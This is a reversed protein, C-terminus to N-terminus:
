AGYNKYRTKIFTGNGISQLFEKFVESFNITFSTPELHTASLATERIVHGQYDKVLFSKPEDIYTSLLKGTYKAPVSFTTNFNKFVENIDNHSIKLLYDHGSKKPLGAITTELQGNMYFIYKKAGLTKFLDYTGENDWVGLPKVVGKVTKPKLSDKPLHQYFLATELKKQIKQNYDYVYKKHKNWNLFKISDTDSYLYDDKISLLGSWLNARAYATVFVGWAFFLFRNRNKNYDAIQKQVDAPEKKWEDTYSIVDRVIDTVSCGYTSNLMGKSHMYFAHKSPIGKLKTKARYLEVITKVFPQPLYHKYFYKVRTIKIADWEYVKRVINFDINTMVTTFKRASWVRGNNEVIMKCKDKFGRSKSLYNDFDYGEKTVLNKFEVQFIVLYKKCLKLFDNYGKYTYNFARSMPYKEAIMVTPYSSTFDISTVNKYTKGVRHPNAHTFGGAFAQKLEKYTEADLQLINMIEHYKRFDKFCNSRALARVRGTNTLPIKSVNGYQERQEDEYDNLIVVDHQMYGKEKETFTTLKNRIKTYDLDGVLKKVKHNTLTKALTELKYGSLILSDRFEIGFSTLAKIPERKDTAFVDVWKFYKRFFQFEFSLNHIYIILRRDKNLKGYKQLFICLTLFQEWTRGYCYYGDLAFQWVYMFAFKEKGQYMSTTETDFASSINLYLPQKKSSRVAEAKNLKQKLLDWKINLFDDFQM